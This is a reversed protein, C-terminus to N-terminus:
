IYGYKYDTLKNIYMLKSKFLNGKINQDTLLCGICYKSISVPKIRFDLLYNNLVSRHEKDRKIEIIVVDNLSKCRNTKLNKFNIDFDITIRENKEYNVLTVRNFNNELYKNLHDIQLNSQKALLSTKLHLNSVESSNLEVRKKRTLGHNDKIKIEFFSLSNDEYYRERVKERPKGGNHHKIFLSKEPTEYYVTKYASVRKGDTEQIYYKDSLRYLLEPLVSINTLYKNDIRNMLKIGSMDTLSIPKFNEVSLQIGSSM